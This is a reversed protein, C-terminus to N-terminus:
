EVEFSILKFDRGETLMLNMSGCHSCTIEFPEPHSIRRCDGCEATLPVEIVNLVTEELATGRAVVPFCFELSERMVGSLAGISVQVNLIKRCGDKEALEIVQDVLAQALAM